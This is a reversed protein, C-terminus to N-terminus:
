ILGDEINVMYIDKTTNNNLHYILRDLDNIEVLGNFHVGLYMVTSPEEHDNDSWLRVRKGDVYEHVMDRLDGKLMKQHWTSHGEKHEINKVENGLMTVMLEDKSM